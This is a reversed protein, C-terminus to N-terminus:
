IKRESKKFIISKFFKGLFITKQSIKKKITNNKETIEQIINHISQPM